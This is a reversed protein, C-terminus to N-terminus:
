EGYTAIFMNENDLFEKLSPFQSITKRAEYELRGDPFKWCRTHIALSNKFFQQCRDMHLGFHAKREKFV